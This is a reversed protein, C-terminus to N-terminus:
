LSSTSSPDDMGLISCAHVMQNVMFRVKAHYQLICFMNIKIMLKTFEISYLSLWSPLLVLLKHITVLSLKQERIM